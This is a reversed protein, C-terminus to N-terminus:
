GHGSLAFRRPTNVQNGNYLENDGRSDRQDRLTKLNDDPRIDTQFNSAIKSSPAKAKYNEIAPAPQGYGLLTGLASTIVRAGGSIVDYGTMLGGRVFGPGTNYAVTYGQVPVMVLTSTPALGIDNLSQDEESISIARNQFPTLIQKFTYPVNQDLKEEEIWKRIDTRLTCTTPLRTRVTGGDFLRVQIACVSQDVIRSQHPNTIASEGASKADAEAKALSRRLEEKHKREVKDDEIVKLIRERELHAKQQKARQERAYTLQKGRVSDPPTERATDQKAKAEANRKSSEATDKNKKDIELRQRRENLLTQVTPNLQVISDELPSRSSSSAGNTMGPSTAPTSDTRPVVGSSDHNLARVLKDRFEDKSIQGHIEASLQGNSNSSILM